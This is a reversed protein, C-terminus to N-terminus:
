VQHLRFTSASYTFCLCCEANVCNVTDGSRVTKCHCLVSQGTERCEDSCWWDETIDPVAAVDVCDLHFWTGFPCDVRSCRVMAVDPKDTLSCLTM